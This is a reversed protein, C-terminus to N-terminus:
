PQRLTPRVLISDWRMEATRLVSQMNMTHRAVPLIAAMFLLVEVPLPSTYEVSAPRMHGAHRRGIACHTHLCAFAAAGESPM